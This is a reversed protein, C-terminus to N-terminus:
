RLAKAQIDNRSRTRHGTAEGDPFPTFSARCPLVELGHERLRLDRVIEPRLLSLVYSATSFRYGPLLEETVCAGGVIPRREVVLTKVGARALYAAAVLGNRGAGLVIVDVAGSM